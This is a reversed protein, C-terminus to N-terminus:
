RATAPLVIGDIQFAGTERDAGNSVIGNSVIGNWDLGNLSIGNPCGGLYTFRGSPQAAASHSPRVPKRSGSYQRLLSPMISLCPM